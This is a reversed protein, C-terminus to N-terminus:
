IIGNQAAYHVLAIVSKTHLKQMINKRHTEVTRVSIFLKDAIERNSFEGTILKIIELERNTLPIEGVTKISRCENESNEEHEPKEDQLGISNHFAIHMIGTMKNNSDYMISRSFCVPIAKNSKSNYTNYVNQIDEENFNTIIDNKNLEEDESKGSLIKEIPQGILEEETYELLDITAQNVITIKGKIDTIILTDVMRNLINNFYVRSVTTKKLIGIMNVFSKSFDDIEDQTPTKVGTKFSLDGQSIKQAMQSLNKIPRTIEKVYFFGGVFLSFALFLGVIIIIKTAMINTAQNTNLYKVMEKSEIIVLENLDNIIKDTVADLEEMVIMGEPNGIPNELEFIENSLLEVEKYKSELDNMYWQNFHAGSHKKCIMIQAKVITNLHEFNIIEVKNGHILYDNAPMNLQLFNVRLNQLANRNSSEGLMIKSNRELKNVSMIGVFAMLVNLMLMAIIGILLRQFITMKIISLRFIRGM